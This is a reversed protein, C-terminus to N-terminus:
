RNWTIDMPLPPSPFNSLRSAWCFYRSSMSYQSVCGSCDGMNRSLILRGPLDNTTSLILVESGPSQSNCQWTSQCTDFPRPAMNLTLPFAFDSEVVSSAVSYAFGIFCLLVFTSRIYMDIMTQTSM